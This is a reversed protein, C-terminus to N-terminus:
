NRTDISLKALADHIPIFFNMGAIGRAGLGSVTIGIVNGRVDMLPGGSDGPLIAVDSQIYRKDNLTRYGSVIGRTLSTNFKEGLPSGIAYVDEGINAEDIRLSVPQLSIAETKILAVDREKDQRIVEGVLERGTPLVVKVFKATGVVHQNTLLYGEQSLFFGSGSSNNAMVTAVASRLTTINKTLPETLPRYAKIKLASFTDTTTAAAPPVDKNMVADHFGPAALLNRAAMTFAKEYYAGLDTKSAATSHYTGSTTTEFLVKKAEPAYVQWFIKLYAGGQMGDTKLCYNANVEKILMGVQLELTKPKEKGPEEFLSDSALAPVAYHANELEKRFSRGLRGAFLTYTTPSWLVDKSNGCFWGTQLEGIKAYPTEYKARITRLSVARGVEGEQMSIVPLEESDPLTVPEARTPSVLLGSALISAAFILKATTPM